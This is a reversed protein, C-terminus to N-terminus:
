TKSQQSHWKNNQYWKKGIRKIDSGLCEAKHPQPDDHDNKLYSNGSENNSAQDFYEQSLGAVVAALNRHFNATYSRQLCRLCTTHDDNNVDDAGESNCCIGKSSACSAEPQYARYFLGM